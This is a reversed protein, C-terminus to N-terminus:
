AIAIRISGVPARTLRITYTDYHWGAETEAPWGEYVVSSGSSEEVLIM